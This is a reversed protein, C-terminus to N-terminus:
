VCSSHQGARRMRGCRRHRGAQESPVFPNYARPTSAPVGYGESTSAMQLSPNSWYVEEVATAKDYNFPEAARPQTDVGFESEALPSSNSGIETNQEQEVV